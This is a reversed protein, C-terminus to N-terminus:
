LHIPLLALEYGVSAQAERKLHVVTGPQGTCNESFIHQRRKESMRRRLTKATMADGKTDREM